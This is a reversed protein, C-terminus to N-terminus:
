KNKNRKNSYTIPYYEDGNPKTEMKRIGRGLDFIGSFLRNLGLRDDGNLLPLVTALAKASELFKKEKDNSNQNDVIAESKLSIDDKKNNNSKFKVALIIDQGHVEKGVVLHENKLRKFIETMIDIENIEIVDHCALYAQFTVDDIKGLIEGISYKAEM